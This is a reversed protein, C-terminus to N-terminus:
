SSIVVVFLYSVTMKTATNGVAEGNANRIFNQDVTHFTDNKPKNM